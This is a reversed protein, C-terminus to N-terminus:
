VRKRGTTVTPEYGIKSWFLNIWYVSIFALVMNVLAILQAKQWKVAAVQLTGMKIKYFGIMLVCLRILKLNFHKM